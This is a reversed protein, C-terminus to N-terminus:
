WRAPAAAVLPACTSAIVTKGMQGAFISDLDVIWIENHIEGDARGALLLHSDDIAAASWCYGAMPLRGVETWRDAAPDYRYLDNLTRERINGAQDSLGGLLYLFGGGRVLAPYLRNAGPLSARRTWHDQPNSLDLSWLENIAKGDVEGCVVFFTNNQIAGAASTLAHPLPALTQISWQNNAPAIRYVQDSPQDAGRLGGALYLGKEDCAYAGEAFPAPLKPGQQWHDQDYIM